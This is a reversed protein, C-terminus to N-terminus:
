ENYAEMLEFADMYVSKIVSEADRDTLVEKGELARDVTNKIFEKTNKEMMDVMGPTKPLTIANQGIDILIRDYISRTIINVVILKIQAGNLNNLDELDIFAEALADRSIAEEETGGNPCLKDIVQGLIVDTSQGELHSLHLERLAENLNRQHVANM